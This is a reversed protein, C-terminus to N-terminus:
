GCLGAGLVPVAGVSHAPRAHVSTKRRCGLQVIKSAGVITEHNVQVILWCNPFDMFIAIRESTRARVSKPCPDTLTVLCGVGFASSKATFTRAVSSATQVEKVVLSPSLVQSVGPATTSRRFPPSHVAWKGPPPVPPPVM